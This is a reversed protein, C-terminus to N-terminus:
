DTVGSDGSGCPSFVGHIIRALVAPVSVTHWPSSRRALPLLRRSTPLAM